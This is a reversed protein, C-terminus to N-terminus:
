ISVEANHSVCTLCIKDTNVEVAEGAEVDLSIFSMAVRERRRVPALDAEPRAEPM